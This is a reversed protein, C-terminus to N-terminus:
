SKGTMLRHKHETHLHINFPKNCDTNFSQTQLNCVQCFLSWITGGSHCATLEQM